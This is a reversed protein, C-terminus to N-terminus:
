GIGPMEPKLMGKRKTEVARAKHSMAKLLEALEEIDRQIEGPAPRNVDLPKAKDHGLLWESCKTMGLYVKKYDEDTVEVYRLDLTHVERSFRRVVKHFLVEEVFAEWTERLLSYICSAERNYEERDTEYAPMVELLREDLHSLRDKVAMCHWPLGSHCKWLSCALSRYSHLLISRWASFITTM